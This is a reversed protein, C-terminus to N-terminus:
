IKTNFEIEMIKKVVQLSKLSENLNGNEAFDSSIKLLHTIIKSLSFNKIDILPGANDWILQQLEPSLDKVKMKNRRTSQKQSLVRSRLKITAAKAIKLSNQLTSLKPNTDLNLNIKNNIKLIKEKLDEPLDNYTIAKKM